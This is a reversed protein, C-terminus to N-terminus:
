FVGFRKKSSNNHQNKENVKKKRKRKSKKKVPEALEGVEGVKVEVEELPIPIGESTKLEATFDELVYHAKGKNILRSAVRKSVEETKGTKNIVIKM